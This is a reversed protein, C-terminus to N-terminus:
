RKYATRLFHTHAGLYIHKEKPLQYWLEILLPQQHSMAPSPTKSGPGLTSAGRAGAIHKGAWSRQVCGGQGASLGAGM